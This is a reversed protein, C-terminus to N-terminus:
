CALMAEHEARVRVADKLMQHDSLDVRTGLIDALKNELRAMDLLTLRRARDFDGILDIDSESSAKGRAMSGHLRLQLIGAAKLEPEHERLIAIM